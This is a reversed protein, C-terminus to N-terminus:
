NTFKFSKRKKELKCRTINRKEHLVFKYFKYIEFLIPNHPVNLCVKPVRSKLYIIPVTGCSDPRTTVRLVLFTSFILSSVSSVLKIFYIWQIFITATKTFVTTLRQYTTQVTFIDCWMCRIGVCLSRRKKYFEWDHDLLFEWRRSDSKQWILCSWWGWVNTSLRGLM